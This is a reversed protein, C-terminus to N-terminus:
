EADSKRRETEHIIASKIFEEDILFLDTFGRDVAYKIIADCLVKDQHSVVEAVLARQITATYTDQSDLDFKPEPKTLEFHKIKPFESPM